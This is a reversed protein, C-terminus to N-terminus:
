GTLLEGVADTCVWWTSGSGPEEWEFYLQFEQSARSDFIVPATAPIPVGVIGTAGDFWGFGNGQVTAAAGVGLITLDAEARWAKGSLGAGTAIWSGTAGITGGGPNGIQRTFLKMGSAGAADAIFYGGARLRIVDGARLVNAPVTLSALVLTSQTSATASRISRLPSFLRYIFQGGSVAPLQWVSGGFVTGEKVSVLAGAADPSDDALAWGMGTAFVYIGNESPDAQFPVFVRDGDSLTVGDATEPPIGTDIPGTVMARCEPRIALAALASALAALQSSDLDAARLLPHGGLTAGDHVVVTKKSTDVTLEGVAGKFTAHQATTGRRLQVQRAM